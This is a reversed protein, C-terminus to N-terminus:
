PLWDAALGSNRVTTFWHDRILGRERLGEAWHAAAEPDRTFAFCTPGHSSMAIADISPQARGEDLLDVMERGQLEIQARKFYGTFTLEDVVSCFTDYDREAVAPALGMFVLHSTRWSEAPPIPMTTTFWELEEAGGIHRGNALLILIPWDPFDLKVLPTPPEVATAFHSPRLYKRPEDAFDPPNPHGCDVLFGGHEALGTSAGSTRGRGLTASLWRIDPTRDCLLGYAYGAAILTTTKSGFGSHAPLAADIDLHVPPGDWLTRLTDAAATLAAHHEGEVGTITTPGSAVAATVTAGPREVGISAIGNRRRSQADLSILTFSIRAPSSVRVASGHRTSAATLHSTM